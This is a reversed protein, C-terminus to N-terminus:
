QKKVKYNITLYFVVIISLYIFGKIILEKLWLKHLILIQKVKPISQLFL